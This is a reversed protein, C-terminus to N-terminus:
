EDKGEAEETEDASGTTKQELVVSSEVVKEPKETIAEAPQDEKSKQEEYEKMKADIQKMLDNPEPLTEPPVIENNVYYLIGEETFVQGVHVWEGNIPHFTSLAKAQKTEPDVRLNTHM